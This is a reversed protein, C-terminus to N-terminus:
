REAKWCDLCRPKTDGSPAKRKVYVAIEQGCSRCHRTGAPVLSLLRILTYRRLAEEDPECMM